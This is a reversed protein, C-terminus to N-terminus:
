KPTQVQQAARQQRVALPEWGAPPKIDLSPILADLETLIAPSLNYANNFGIVQNPTFVVTVRTKAMANKIAPDLKARIQENVYADSLAVPELIRNVEQQGYAQSTQIAQAQQQLAAQNAGPAAKDRNYKEVMTKLEANIAQSRRNAADIQAKYVIGRQQQASKFAQSNVVIADINAIALGPVMQPAPATAQAAAPTAALAAHSALASAFAALFTLKLSRNM